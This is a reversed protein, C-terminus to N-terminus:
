SAAPWTWLMYGWSLGWLVALAIIIRPRGLFRGVISVARSGTLASHLAPWFVAAVLVALLFGMPQAQISGAFDGSAARAFATTMGCTACPSGSALLLGCPELGLQEHTGFGCEAPKLYIAVGMLSACGLAVLASVARDQLSLHPSM